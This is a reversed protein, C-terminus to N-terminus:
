EEDIQSRDANVEIFIYYWTKLINIERKTSVCIGKVKQM